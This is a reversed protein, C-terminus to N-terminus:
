LAENFLRYLKIHLERPLNTIINLKHIFNNYSILCKDSCKIKNIWHIFFTDM